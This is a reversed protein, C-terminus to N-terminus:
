RCLSLEATTILVRAVEDVSLGRGTYLQDFSDFSALLWLLDTAEDVTVDPRLVDQEALRHALYTMGGVRNEKMRHVAGGVAEEHVGAVENRGVTRVARDAGSHANGHVPGVVEYLAERCQEAPDCVELGPDLPDAGDGGARLQRLAEALVAREADAVGCVPERWAAARSHVGGDMVPVVQAPLEGSHEATPDSGFQQVGVLGLVSRHGLVVRCARRVRDAREALGLLLQRNIEATAERMDPQRGRDALHGREVNQTGPQCRGAARVLLRQALRTGPQPPM